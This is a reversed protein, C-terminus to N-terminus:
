HIAPATTPIEIAIYHSAFIEEGDLTTIENDGVMCIIKDQESPIWAWILGDPLNHDIAQWHKM